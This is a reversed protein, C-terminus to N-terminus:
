RRRAHDAEKVDITIETYPEEDVLRLIPATTDHNPTRARKEAEEQLAAIRRALENGGVRAAAVCDVIRQARELLDEDQSSCRVADQVRKADTLLTPLERRLQMLVREIEEYM